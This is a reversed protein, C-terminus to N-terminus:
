GAGFLDALILQSSDAGASRIFVPMDGLLVKQMLRYFVFTNHFGRRRNRNNGRFIAVEIGCAKCVACDCKEWPRDTLTRRYPESMDARDVTVYKDYALLADLCDQVSCKRRGLARVRELANRELKMIQEEGMAAHLAMHKARFSKGAEPIRLAAYPGDFSTYSQRIRMWAQRLYSASDVSDIGAEVFPLISDLRAVGFLHVKVSSHIAKRVEGVVKLIASSNSRVLGGIGIYRYGMKVYEAAAKAYSEPDWGQVAGIPEWELGAKRHEKLFEEANHITLDYRFKKQDETASVILHDVSVGFDFGLRTYYDLVDATTYPPTEEMIYDFAGCDGMIPFERPVRLYRHVGMANIREKKKKSKEAVARSMLIGDYNPEPYMQHAYVENSWDGGGGSHRDNIFDFDPDVLDDWEPIFYSLKKRHPKDWWPKPIHIVVDVKSNAIAKGRTTAVTALSPKGSQASGAPNAVEALFDYAPDMLRKAWKPDRSLKLLVRKAIEGKLGVLGCSFRKADANSLTIVRLNPIRPLRKAPGSGTFLITPGGLKVGADLTCAKLYNEGLLILALDYPEVVTKRFGEPVRLLKALDRIEGVKMGQFTCEYPAIRRSEPIFGYGASLIEVQCELGVKRAEGVGRMLRVHQQGTYMDGASLLVSKLEKERGKVHGAGKQFDELKLQRDDAVGKEGTCSTIVLLKM